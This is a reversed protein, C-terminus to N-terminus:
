DALDRWRVIQMPTFMWVNKADDARSVLVRKAGPDAEIWQQAGLYAVVHLGDSTVALDGPAVLAHDLKSIARTTTISVTQGYAANGHDRASCDNWWLGISRRILAPNLTNFGQELLADEFGRRVLGSCDIGRKNEGGWIYSVGDYRQLASVYADQLSQRNLSSDGAIALLTGCVLTIGLISIRIRSKNWIATVMLAWAITLSLLISVRTLRTSIPYWLLAVFVAVAGLLILRQLRPTM